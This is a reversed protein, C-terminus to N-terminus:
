VAGLAQVGADPQLNQLNSQGVRLLIAALEAQLQPEQGRQNVFGEYYNLAADLLQKRLPQLGPVDFLRSESVLTFYEDVAQRAQRFNAEAKAKEIELARREAAEAERAAILQVVLRSKEELEVQANREAIGARIAQGIAGVVGIILAALVLSATMFAVRNRRAFRRLRYLASARRAEVPRHELYRRVDAGFTSATDYRRTRDKELAKMVIWDLDGRLMQRLRGPDSGRRAAVVTRTEGM